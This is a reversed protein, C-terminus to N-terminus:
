DALLLTMQRANRIGVDQYNNNFLVHVARAQEALGRVKPVWESLEAEDYLYNFRDSAAM